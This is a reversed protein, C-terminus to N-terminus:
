PRLGKARRAVSVRREVMLDVQDEVNRVDEDTLNLITALARDIEYIKPKLEEIQERTSSGGIKRAELELEDFLKALSNLQRDNLKRIDLLPIERATSVDLQIVGGPSKLGKQEIYLQVFSSNLYALLAKVRTDDVSFRKKPVLTMLAQDMVAPFKCSIFRTKRWARYITFVFAPIMGGLDYWGYFRGAEKARAKAAQTEIVLQGGRRERRKMATRCETEGWKIYDVVERPLEEKPKHCM